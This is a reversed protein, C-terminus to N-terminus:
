STSVRRPPCAAQFDDLDIARQRLWEVVREMRMGRSGKVLLVDNPQLWCDLIELLGDLHRCATFQDPQMGAARAGETVHKSEDGFSLLHGIGLEGILQGMEFHIRSTESGLELMDGIICIRRGPGAWNALMRIAAELSTPNSNYSDDIVVFQGFVNVQCRGKVASFQRLGDSIESDSLGSDRGVAIAALAAPLHHRGAVNVQFPQGDVRFRLRTNDVKVENAVLDNHKGEGVLVVRCRVREAMSRVLDDDGVLVALGNSPLSELLEAKAAVIDALTGFSELHAPGIGTIVGIQPQAIAALERIEGRASAGLEIVASKTQADFQFISLPVGIHNNYNQPSRVCRHNSSLVSHIMERTTTKGFSGTVATVRVNSQRRYWNALVSLSAQTDTVRICPGILQEPIKTDSVVCAVAGNKRADCIFDHGDFRDGRLVWFLDGTRVTRSDVVIRRIQLNENVIGVDTGGIAAALQEISIPQMQSGGALIPGISTLLILLEQVIQGM